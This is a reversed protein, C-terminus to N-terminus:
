TNISLKCMGANVISSSKVSGSYESELASLYNHPLPLSLFLYCARAHACRPPIHHDRPQPPYPPHHNHIHVLIASYFVLYSSSSSSSFSDGGAHLTPPAWPTNNIQALYSYNILLDYTARQTYMGGSPETRDHMCRLAGLRWM